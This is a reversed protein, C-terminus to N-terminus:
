NAARPTITSVTVNPFNLGSARFAATVVSGIVSNPPPLAWPENILEALEIRPRRTWRNKAGAVIAYRDDYLPEFALDDDGGPDFRWAVLLDINRERLDRHLAEAEAGVVHFGIRPYQKSVRDIVSSVFSALHKTGPRLSKTQLRHVFRSLTLAVPGV